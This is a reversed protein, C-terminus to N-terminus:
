PTSLPGSLLFGPSNLSQGQLLHFWKQSWFHISQTAYLVTNVLSTNYTCNGNPVTASLAPRSVNQVTYVCPRQIQTHLEPLQLQWWQRFSHQVGEGPDASPHNGTPKSYYIHFHPLSQITLLLWWYLWWFLKFEHRMPDSNDDEYLPSPLIHSLQNWSDLLRFKILNKGVKFRWRVLYGINHHLGELDRPDEGHQIQAVCKAVLLEYPM